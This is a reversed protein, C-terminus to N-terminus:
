KGDGYMAAFDRDPIHWRKEEVPLPTSQIAKLWARGKATLDAGMENILGNQKLWARSSFGAPSNWVKSNIYGAGAANADPPCVYVALFIALTLASVGEEAISAKLKAKLDARAEDNSCLEFDSFWRRRYDKGWPFKVCYRVKKDDPADESYTEMIRVIKGRHGRFLCAVSNITVHDGIKM